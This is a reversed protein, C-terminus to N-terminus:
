YEDELAKNKEAGAGAGGGNEDADEAATDNVAQEVPDEIVGGGLAIEEDGEVLEFVATWLHEAYDKFLEDGALRPAAAYQHDGPAAATFGAAAGAGAAVQVPAKGKKRWRPQRAWTGRLMIRLLALREITEAKMSNRAPSVLATLVSGVQEPAASAAPAYGVMRWMAYAILKCTFYGDDRTALGHDIITKWHGRLHGSSSEAAQVGQAVADEIGEAIADERVLEAHSKAKKTAAPPPLVAGAARKLAM